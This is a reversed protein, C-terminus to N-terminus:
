HPLAPTKLHSTEPDADTHIITDIVVRVEKDIKKAHKKPVRYSLTTTPKGKPRGSGERKGGRTEKKIEVDTTKPLEKKDM